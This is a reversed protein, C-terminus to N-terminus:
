LLKMVKVPLACCLKRSILNTVLKRLLVNYFQFLLKLLIYTQMQVLLPQWLHISLPLVLCITIRLKFIFEEKSAKPALNILYPSARCQFLFM